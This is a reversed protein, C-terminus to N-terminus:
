GWSQTPKAGAQDVESVQLGIRAHKAQKGQGRRTCRSGM